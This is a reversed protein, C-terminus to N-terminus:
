SEAKIEGIDLFPVLIVVEGRGRVIVLEYRQTGCNM